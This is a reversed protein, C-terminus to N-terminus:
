YLFVAGSDSTADKLGDDDAAPVILTDGDRSLAIAGRFFTGGFRDSAGPDPAKVYRVETWQTDTSSREFLFAAGADSLVEDPTGSVGADSGDERRASVALTTGSEDFALAGGFYDDASVNSSKIYDDQIWKTGTRTFVYAAGSEAAGGDEGVAGVALRLGDASLAVASGFLDDAASASLQVYNAHSWVGASNRDYVDVAGTSAEREAGVALTTGRANLAVSVGFSDGVDSHSGKIFASQSWSLGNAARTYMYVAGSNDEDDDLGTATTGTGSSDEGSAGIALTDGDESLALAAGFHDSLDGNSPTLIGRPKWISGGRAYVHVEGASYTKTPVGIALTNGDGSLAVTMGFADFPAGAGAKIFAQQTWGSASKVFVYVAGSDTGLEDIVPPNVGACSCDEYPAGIAVTTGDASAAIAYGFRDGADVNRAEIRGIADLELTVVSQPISFSCIPLTAPGCAQVVYTANLWDLRHVAVDLSFTMTSGVFRQPIKPSVAVLPAGVGASERVIYYSADAVAQWSFELQKTDASVTLVPPPPPAARADHPKGIFLLALLAVRGFQRALPATM